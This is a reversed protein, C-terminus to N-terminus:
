PSVFTSLFQYLPLNSFLQSEEQEDEGQNENALIMCYDIFAYILANLLNMRKQNDYVISPFSPAVQSLTNSRDRIPLHKKVHKLIYYKYM